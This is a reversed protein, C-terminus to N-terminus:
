PIHLIRWFFICALLLTPISLLKFVDWKASKQALITFNKALTSEAKIYSKQLENRKKILDLGHTTVDDVTESTLAEAYSMEAADPPGVISLMGHAAKNRVTGNSHNVACHALIQCSNQIEGDIETIRRAM